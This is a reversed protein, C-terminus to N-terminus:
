FNWSFGGTVELGSLDITGFGSFDRNLEDESYRYRGEFFFSWRFGLPIDLGALAFAEWTTGDALFSAFIVPLDPDGFDIFSGEERLRWWVIGGGAGVYPAIGNGGFRLIYAATLDNLSLRTAHAIDRGDADVWDQYAQTTRGEFFSGGFLLGGHQSTRWLYDAGWVLDEFDSASGTFVEFTDDWYQSNGNPEFIGLRFRFSGFDGPKWNGQAEAQAATLAVLAAAFVIMRFFFRTRM